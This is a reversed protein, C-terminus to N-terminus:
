KNNEKIYKTIKRNEKKYCSDCCGHSVMGSTDIACEITGMDKGCYCCKVKMIGM